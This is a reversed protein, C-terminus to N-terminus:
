ANRFEQLVAVRATALNHEDCKFTPVLKTDAYISCCTWVSGVEDTKMKVNPEKKGVFCRIEDVIGSRRAHDYRPSGTMREISRISSGETLAGIIAIQKDTNLVNAM